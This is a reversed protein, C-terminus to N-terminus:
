VTQAVCGLAMQRWSEMAVQRDACPRLNVFFEIQGRATDHFGACEFNILDQAALECFLLAFSRPTFVWCHVDHYVGEKAQLACNVAHQLSHHRELLADDATGEWVKGGDVKSVNAVYDLVM